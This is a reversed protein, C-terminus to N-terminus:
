WIRRFCGMKSTPLSGTTKSRAEMIRWLGVLDGQVELKAGLCVAWTKVTPWWSGRFYEILLSMLGGICELYTVVFNCCTQTLWVTCRHDCQASVVTHSTPHIVNMTYIQGSLEHQVLPCLTKSQCM